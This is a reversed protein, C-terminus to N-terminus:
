KDYALPTLKKKKALYKRESNRGCFYFSGRECECVCVCVWAFVCVCLHTRTRFIKYAIHTREYLIVHVHISTLIYSHIRSHTYIFKCTDHFTFAHTHLIFTRKKRALCGFVASLAFVRGCLRVGCIVYSYTWGTIKYMHIHVCVYVYTYTNIYKYTYQKYIITYQMLKM